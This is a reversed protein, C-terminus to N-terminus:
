LRVPEHLQASRYLADIVRAQAVADTRSLLAPSEGSVAAAFDEFQLRYSDAADVDIRESTGDPRRLEIQPQRCHWPDRVTAVGASGVFTLEADRSVFGSEFHAIAGTQLRVTGYFREDVGSPGTVQDGYVSEPEGGLLRLASICYCGLDMLSGGQLDARLRINAPDAVPFSFAARITQVDGIDGSALLSALKRTQPHHRYMFAETVVLGAEGAADFVREVESPDRALPKECIVHKGSRIAALCWEVHLSNPLAVYVADVLDSALLEKYSGYAEAIGGSDAVARARDKSRSAIAAVEVGDSALASPLVKEVIFGTALIGM